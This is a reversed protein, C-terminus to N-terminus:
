TKQSEKDDSAERYFDKLIQEIIENTDSNLDGVFHNWWNKHQNQDNYRLELGTNERWINIALQILAIAIIEPEWMLCLTTSFSDNTFTWAYSSIKSKDETELQFIKLYELLYQYPHDVQLDFRLTNLLIKEFNM